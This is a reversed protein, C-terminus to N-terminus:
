LTPSALLGAKNPVQYTGVGEECTITIQTNENLKGYFGLSTSDCLTVNATGTVTKTRTTTVGGFSTHMTVTYQKGATTGYLKFATYEDGNIGVASDGNKDPDIYQVAVNYVQQGPNVNGGRRVENYSTIVVWAATGNSNLAAVIEGEFAGTVPNLAVNNVAGKVTGYETTEWDGNEWQILVAKADTALALGEDHQDATAYLTRGVLTLANPASDYHNFKGVVGEDWTKAKGVMYGNIGNVRYARADSTRIADGAPYTTLDAYADHGKASDYASTQGGFSDNTANGALKNGFYSYIDKEAITRISTVYNDADFRLEVLGDKLNWNQRDAIAPTPDTKSRGAIFAGIAKHADNSERRLDDLSARSTDKVTLTQVTGNMVADFEWYYVGNEVRESKPGSTVYAITGTGGDGEGDIVAGIIYNDSNYVVYVQAEELPSDMEVDIESSQIGTYVGTVETIALANGRSTDVLDTDVTLFVSDDNGYARETCDISYTWNSANGPAKSNLLGGWTDIVGDADTDSGNLYQYPKDTNIMVNDDVFLNDTKLKVENGDVATTYKYVVMRTAPKLTYVGDANTTYTFWRNLAYMGADPASVQLDGDWPLFYEGQRENTGGDYHKNVEEINDNTATVNVKITQMTGDLFIGAADATKISLNSTPRDFGTIFVYNKTGEFLEVGIFYGYEDLYVNYTNDTLLNEEYLDLVNTDYYANANDKYETGGVTLKEVHQGAVYNAGGWGTNTASFKTVTSDDLIEPTVLEVIDGNADATGPNHKWTIKALFWDDEKADVVAGCDDVDVTKSLTRNQYRSHVDFPADERKENYDGTAQALFTSISTVTIEEHDKDLFVQTLVGRGTIGVSKQNARTVDSTVVINQGGKTFSDGNLATPNGTGPVLGNAYYTLDNDRLNTSGLLDYLDRGSVGATYDEGVQLSWDVYTGIEEKDYLWTYGPREFDDRGRRKELKKFYEEAFQVIDDERINNIRTQQSQWPRSQAGGSSLVVETGNISTTLRQGYEVLDAQLTNFAYLCAEERNVAKLGNFVAGDKEELGAALGIGLAQKAVNISWNANGAYGELTSDYGLAGLLMKMFAYGTLTNGPKFTGDGYGSIIGRQQCYAIYGAFESTTPVDPYPAVNAHLESATTPGLILNCIIKAAAQRTLTNTPKFTGDGYGDVIGVESVVAVAEDYTITENDTFDKAGASITVLSMVMVLAMVMSLFKKM